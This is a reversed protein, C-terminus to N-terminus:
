KAAVVSISDLRQTLRTAMAQPLRAYDLASEFQQGDTLAWRLFDMLQRGKDANPQNRYVLIWTFSSIPYSQAGPANVIGPM